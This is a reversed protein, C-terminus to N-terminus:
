DALPVAVYTHRTTDYTVLSQIGDGSVANNSGGIRIEVSKSDKSWTAQYTATHFLQSRKLRSVKDSALWLDRDFGAVSSVRGNREVRYLMAENQGVGVKQIRLIWRDDPSFYYDGRWSFAEIEVEALDPDKFRIKETLHEGDEYKARIVFTKGPSESVVGTYDDGQCALPCVLALLLWPPPGPITFRIM